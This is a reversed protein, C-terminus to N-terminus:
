GPWIGQKGPSLIGEPDLASKVRQQLRQAAHDNFDYQDAVVDMFAVHTRYLAYRQAAADKILEPFLRRVARREDLNAKDFSILALTIAHRPFTAFGGAYDFGFQEVRRRILQVQRAADAGKPPCVLAFDAHAPEGSRWGGMRVRDMSPLGLQVRDAPHVTAPDVSGPYTRTDIGIGSRANWSGLQLAARIKQVAEEPMPGVGDYWDRRDSIMSAVVLANGIPVNSQITGDLLLPRLTDIMEALDHEGPARATCVIATEPAPQLWVGM